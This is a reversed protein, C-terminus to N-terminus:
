IGFNIGAKLGEFEKFITLFKIYDELRLDPNEKIKNTLIEFKENINSKLYNLFLDKNNDFLTTLLYRLPTDGFPINYMNFPEKWDCTNIFYLKKNEIHIDYLNICNTFVTEELKSVTDPIYFSKLKNCTNFCHKGIFNLKSNKTINFNELNTCDAFASQGIYEVSDPLTFNKLKSSNAFAMGDIQYLNSNKAFEIETISSSKISDGDYFSSKNYLRLTHFAYKEIFEVNKHIYVRDIILNLKEQVELLTSGPIISLRDSIELTIHNDDIIVYGANVQLLKIDGTYLM